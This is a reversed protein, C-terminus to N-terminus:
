KEANARNRERDGLDKGTNGDRHPIRACRRTLVGYKVNVLHDVSLEKCSVARAITVILVNMQLLQKKFQTRM